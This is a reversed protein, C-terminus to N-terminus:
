PTLEVTVGRHELVEVVDRIAEQLLESLRVRATFEECEADQITILFHLEAKLHETGGSPPAPNEALQALDVFACLVNHNTEVADENSEVVEALRNFLIPAVLLAACALIIALTTCARWIVYSTIRFKGRRIDMM